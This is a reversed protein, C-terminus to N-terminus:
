VVEVDSKLSKIADKIMKLADRAEPKQLNTAHTAFWAFYGKLIKYRNMLKDFKTKTATERDIMRDLVAEAKSFENNAASFSKFATKFAHEGKTPPKQKKKDKKSAGSQKRSRLLAESKQDPVGKDPLPESLQHRSFWVGHSKDKYIGTIKYMKPNNGKTEKIEYAEKSISKNKYLIHHKNIDGVPYQEKTFTLGRYAKSFTHEKEKKVVLRVFDGVKLPKRRDTDAKERHKNYSEKIAKLGEPTTYKEVAEAPTMKLIRNYSNNVIDVAQALVGNITNGRKANKIRHFVRMVHSNKQEVKPGVKIVVHTVDAINKLGFFEPGGDSFLHIQSRKLKLLKTFFKVGKEVIKMTPIAKKNSAKQCWAYSTLRDVINVIPVSKQVSGM